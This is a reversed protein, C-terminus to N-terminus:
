SVAFKGSDSMHTHVEKGEIGNREKGKGELASDPSSATVPRPTPPSDFPVGESEPAEVCEVWGIKESILVELARVMEEEKSDSQSDFGAVFNRTLVLWGSTSSNM